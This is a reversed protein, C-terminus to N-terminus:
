KVWFTSYNQRVMYFREFQTTIRIQIAICAAIQPARTNCREQISLRVIALAIAITFKKLEEILVDQPATTVSAAIHTM